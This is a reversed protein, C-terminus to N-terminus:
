CRFVCSLVSALFCIFWVFGYSLLVRVTSILQVAAKVCKIFRCSPRLSFAVPEAGSELNDSRASLNTNASCSKGIVFICYTILCADPISKNWIWKSICAWQMGIHKGGIVLMVWLWLREGRMKWRVSEKSEDMLKFIHDGVPCECPLMVAAAFLRGSAAKTEAAVPLRLPRPPSPDWCCEPAQCHHTGAGPSDPLILGM